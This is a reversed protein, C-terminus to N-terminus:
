SELKCNQSRPRSEDNQVNFHYSFTGKPLEQGDKLMLISHYQQLYDGCNECWRQETKDWFAAQLNDHCKYSPLSTKLSLCETKYFSFADEFYEFSKEEVIDKQWDKLFWWPEWDGYMKIVQYM